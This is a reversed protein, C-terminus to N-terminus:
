WIGGGGGCSVMGDSRRAMERAMPVAVKASVVVVVVTVVVVMEAGHTGVDLLAPDRTAHFLYFYSEMLEPRLPYGAQGDQVM